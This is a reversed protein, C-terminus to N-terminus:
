GSARGLGIPQTAQLNGLPQTELDGVGAQQGWRGTVTLMPRTCLWLALLEIVQQGPQGGAVTLRLPFVVTTPQRGTM